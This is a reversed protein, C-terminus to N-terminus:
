NVPDYYHLAELSIEKHVCRVRRRLVQWIRSLEILTYKAEAHFFKTNFLSVLDEWDHVMWPKLNVYWTYAKNTRSKSFERLRLNTDHAHYDISDLSRM